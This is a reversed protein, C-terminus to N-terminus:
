EGAAERRELEARVPCPENIDQCYGETEFPCSPQAEGTAARIAAAVSAAGAEMGACEHERGPKPTGNAYKASLKTAIEAARERMEEQGRKYEAALAAAHEAPTPCGNNESM